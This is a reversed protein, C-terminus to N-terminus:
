TAPLDFTLAPSDTTWTRQAGRLRVRPPVGYVALGVRRVGLRSLRTAAASNPFRRRGTNRKNYPAAAAAIMADEAAAILVPREVGHQDIADRLRLAKVHRESSSADYAAIRIDCALLYVLRHPEYLLMRGLITPVKHHAGAPRRLADQSSSGVYEIRLDIPAGDVHGRSVSGSQLRELQRDYIWPLLEQRNQGLPGDPDESADFEIPPLDEAWDLADDLVAWPIASPRVHPPFTARGWWSDGSWAIGGGPRGSAILLPFTGDPQQLGVSVRAHSCVLYLVEDRDAALPESLAREVMGNPITSAPILHPVIAIAM